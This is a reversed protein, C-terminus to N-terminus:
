YSLLLIYVCFLRVFCIKAIQGLLKGVGIEIKFKKRDM